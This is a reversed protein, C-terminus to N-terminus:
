SAREELKWYGTGPGVYTSVQDPHDREWQKRNFTKPVIWSMRLPAEFFASHLDIVAADPHALNLELKIATKVAEYREVAEEAKQKLQRYQILLTSLDDDTGANVIAQPAKTTTTM